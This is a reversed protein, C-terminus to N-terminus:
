TSTGADKFAVSAAIDEPSPTQNGLSIPKTEVTSPPTQVASYAPTHRLVKASLILDHSLRAQTKKKGGRRSM